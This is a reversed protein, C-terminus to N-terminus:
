EENCLSSYHEAEQALWCIAASQIYESAMGQGDVIEGYLKYAAEDAMM